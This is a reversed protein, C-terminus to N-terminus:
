PKAQYLRHDAIYRCVAPMTLFDIPLGAQVRSRIETASIEIRPVRVVNQRLAQYAPPLSPWALEAGPRVMILFRAESLLADAQHWSPLINLMDGGILWTVPNWGEAKLERVTHITFTPGPRRVERDDVSFGPIGAVALRCMELRDQASALDPDNPKHAPSGAPFLVVGDAGAAEAAARACLLHGLHIPNFTGGLCIKGQM